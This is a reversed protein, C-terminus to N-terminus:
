GRVSGDADGAGATAAELDRLTQRLRLVAGLIKAAHDAVGHAQGNLTSTGQYITSALWGIGAALSQAQGLASDPPIGGALFGPQTLDHSEGYAEIAGWVLLYAFYYDGPVGLEEAIRSDIEDISAGGSSVRRELDALIEEHRLHM